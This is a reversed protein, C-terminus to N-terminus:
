DKRLRFRFEGGGLVSEEGEFWALLTDEERQYIMWLPDDSEDKFYVAKRGEPLVLSFSVSEEKQEWGVLGPNFHKIRLTFGDEDGEITVFENFRVKDEMVWRFMCMMTGGAPASWREEILASGKEGARDGASWSLDEVRTSILKTTPYKGMEMRRM